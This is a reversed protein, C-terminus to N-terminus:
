LHVVQETLGKVVYQIYKCYNGKSILFTVLYLYHGFIFWDEANPTSIHVGCEVNIYWVYIKVITPFTTVIVLYGVAYGIRVDVTM